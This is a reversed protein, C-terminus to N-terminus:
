SLCVTCIMYLSIMYRDHLGIQLGIQLSVIGVKFFLIPSGPPGPESLTTDDPSHHQFVFGSRGTSGPPFGQSYLAGEGLRLQKCTALRLTTSWNTTIHHWGQLVLKSQGPESLTLSFSPRARVTVSSKRSKPVILLSGWVLAKGILNHRFHGCDESATEPRLSM